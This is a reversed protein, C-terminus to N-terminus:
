TLNFKQILFKLFRSTHCVTVRNETPNQTSFPTFFKFHILCIKMSNYVWQLESYRRDEPSPHTCLAGGEPSPIQLIPARWEVLVGTTSHRVGFWLPLFVGFWLPLSWESSVTMLKYIFVPSHWRSCVCLRTSTSPQSCLIIRLPFRTCTVDHWPLENNSM